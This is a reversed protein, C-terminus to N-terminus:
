AVASRDPWHALAMILGLAGFVETFRDAHPGFYFIVQGQLASSLERTDGRWYHARGRPLCLWSPRVSM